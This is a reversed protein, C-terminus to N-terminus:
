ARRVVMVPSAKIGPSARLAPRAKYARRGRCARSVRSGKYAQRARCGLSGPSAPLVSSAQRERHGRTAKCVQRVKFGRLDSALPEKLDQRVKLDPKAKSAQIARRAQRDSSM